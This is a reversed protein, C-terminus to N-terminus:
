QRAVRLSFSGKLRRRFTDDRLGYLIPTLSRPIIQFFIYFVFRLDAQNEPFWKRLVIQVQPVMYSAMSLLVQVGHLALTNRARKADHSVERAILMIRVYTYLITIWVVVLFVWYTIDRKRVLLLSPLLIQRLCFIKSSFFGPPQTTVAIFLDSLASLATVAWLLGVAAMTRRVTCIQAHHLPAQVAIYCEAAMCALCLPTNQTTFLALMMLVSCLLAHIRYVTYSTVFLVISVTVQVM